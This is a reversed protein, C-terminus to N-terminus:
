SEMPEVSNLTWWPPAVANPCTGSSVQYILGRPPPVCCASFPLPRRYDWLEGGTAGVGLILYRKIKELCLTKSYMGWGQHGVDELWSGYDVKWHRYCYVHGRLRILQNPWLEQLWIVGWPNYGSVPSAEFRGYLPLMGHGSEYAFHTSREEYGTTMNVGKWVIDVQPLQIGLRHVCHSPM